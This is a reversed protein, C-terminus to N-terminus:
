TKDLIERIGPNLFEGLFEGISTDTIDYYVADDKLGIRFGKSIGKDVKITVTDNLQEHSKTFILQQLKQLDNEAILVELQNKKGWQSVVKLILEKMFEPELRAGVEQKLVADCLKILKEKTVLITDRAAQKLAAESNGQLKDAEKGAQGVIKKGDERAQKLIGEAEKKATKVIEEAAKNAEAIGDKKIREILHELKSEM